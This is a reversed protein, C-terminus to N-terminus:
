LKGNGRWCSHQIYYLYILMTLLGLTKSATTWYVHIIKMTSLPIIVVGYYYLFYVFYFLLAQFLWILLPVGIYFSNVKRSMIHAYVIGVLILFFNLWRLFMIDFLERLM